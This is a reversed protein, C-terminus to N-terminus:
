PVGPAPEGEHDVPFIAHFMEATRTWYITSQLESASACSMAIVGALQAMWGTRAAAIFTPWVASEWTDYDAAAPLTDDLAPQVTTM